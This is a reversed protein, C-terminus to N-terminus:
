NMFKTMEWLAYGSTGTKHHTWTVDNYRVSIHELILGAGEDIVDPMVLNIDSILGDNM